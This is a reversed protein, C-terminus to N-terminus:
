YNFGTRIAVRQQQGGSLEKPYRRYYEAAPTLGVKELM